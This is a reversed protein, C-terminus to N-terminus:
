DDGGESDDGDVGEAAGDAAALRQALTSREAARCALPLACHRCTKPYDKPAVAAVGAVFEKALRTLQEQWDALLGDWGPRAIGVQAGDIVRAGPLLGDAHALAVARTQGPRLQAFLLAGVREPRGGLAGQAYATAYLPLQPEDPRADLWAAVHVLGTKYDIVALTGDALRDVRDPRVSVQLGGLVVRGQAELGLVTFPPRSREIELWALGARQLREMELARLRPGIRGPRERELEDLATAAARQLRQAAGAAGLALLAAQTGLGEWFGQLLRHLLRGRTMADLGPAPVALPTAHLRHVAQARFACASQDRFVLSGGRVAAAADADLPRVQTDTLPAPAVDRALLLPLPATATALSEFAHCTISEILASPLVERDAEQAAHSVVMEGCQAALRALQRRAAALALDASALPVQWARQLGTALWPSPNAPLPWREDSLNAFWLHDFPLHEAEFAGLVQVPVPPSEPQFVAESLARRARQVVDALVVPGVIGDLSGLETLVERWRLQAQWEASDLPRTGPFGADALAGFLLVVWASPLQRRPAAALRAQVQALARALLPAADAHPQGGDGLRAARRRLETLDVQWCGDDRLARDLRARAGWEAEGGAGAAVFPARLLRGTRPLDLPGLMLDALDLATAVLPQESLPTGLSLNFPQPGAEDPAVRLAPALADILAARVATRQAGLDPVVIGIRAQPDAVLRARAWAAVQRWQSPLDPSRVRVMPAAASDDAVRWASEVQTGAQELAALLARQPATLPDFGALLLRAPVPWQGAQLAQRLLAPLQAATVARRRQLESHMQGAWAAFAEADATGATQLGPLGPGHEHLLDWTAAVSAVLAQRQPLTAALPSREIIQQWLARAQLDSLLTPPREDVEAHGRALWASWTLVDAAPWVRRGARQQREDYEQKLARALRRSPALVTVGAALAERVAARDVVRVPEGTGQM